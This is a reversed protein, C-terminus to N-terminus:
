PSLHPATCAHDQPRVLMHGAEEHGAALCGPADQCAGRQAANHHSSAAAIASHMGVACGQVQSSPLVRATTGSAQMGQGCVVLLAKMAGQVLLAPGPFPPRGLALM